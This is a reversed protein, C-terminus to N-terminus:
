NEGNKKRCGRWRCVNTRGEEGGGGGGRMRRAHVREVECIQGGEERRMRM